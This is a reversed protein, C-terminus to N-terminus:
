DSNEEHQESAFDDFRELIGSRSLGMFRGGHINSVEGLDQQSASEKGANVRLSCGFNVIPQPVVVLQWGVLGTGFSEFLLIGVDLDLNSLCTPQIIPRGQAGPENGSSRGVHEPIM